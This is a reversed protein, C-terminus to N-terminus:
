FLGDYFEFLNVAIFEITAAYLLFLSLTIVSALLAILVPPCHSRRLRVAYAWGLGCLWVVLQAWALLKNDNAMQNWLSTGTGSVAPWLGSSHWPGGTITICPPASIFETAMVASTYCGTLFWFTLAARPQRWAAPSVVLKPLRRWTGADVLTLWATQLVIYLLATTLWTLMFVLDAGFFFSLLTSVFCLAAFALAHRASVRKTIQKAFVWPAFLVTLWTLGLGPLKWWRRAREFAIRPANAAAQRVQDWDFATGCEPCRPEPLGTLNYDCRPCRLGADQIGSNEM